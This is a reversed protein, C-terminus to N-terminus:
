IPAAMALARAKSGDAAAVWVKGGAEYALPRTVMSVGLAGSSLASSAAIRGVIASLARM